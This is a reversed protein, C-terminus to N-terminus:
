IAVESYDGINLKLFKRNSKGKVVKAYRGVLSEELKEVGIIFAGELTVCYEIPSEILGLEEITKPDLVEIATVEAYTEM